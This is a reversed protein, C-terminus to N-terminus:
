GGGPHDSRSPYAGIAEARLQRRGKRVMLVLATGLSAAVLAMALGVIAVTAELITRRDFRVEVDLPRGAFHERLTRKWALINGREIGGPSNHYRITSPFHYRLALLAQPDLPEPAAERPSPLSLELELGKEGSVLRCSRGRFAPARCLDEWADFRADVHVFKRRDRETERVSLVEVGDAAFLSAAREADVDHLAEIAAASGSMRIDGSGDVELFVEEEYEYTACGSAAILALM